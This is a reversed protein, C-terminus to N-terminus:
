IDGMVLQRQCCFVEQRRIEAGSLRKHSKRRRSKAVVRTFDYFDERYVSQSFQISCSPSLLSFLHIAFTKKLSEVILQFSERKNCFSDDNFRLARSVHCTQIVAGINKSRESSTTM